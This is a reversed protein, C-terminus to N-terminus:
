ILEISVDGLNQKSREKWSQQTISYVPFTVIDYIFVVCRLVGFVIDILTRREHGHGPTNRLDEGCHACREVPVRTVTEITRTHHSRHHAPTQGTTRTGPKSASQDEDKGTQSPPLGSNRSTKPTTKELFVALLLEFLLLLAEVLARLEASVEGKACHQEFRGKLATFEERLSAKNVSAM